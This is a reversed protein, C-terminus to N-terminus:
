QDGIAAAIEELRRRATGAREGDGEREYFRIARELASKAESYLGAAEETAVRTALALLSGALNDLPGADAMSQTNTRSAEVVERHLDVARRLKEVDEGTEGLIQLVAALGAKAATLQGEPDKAASLGAIADNYEGESERLKAVDENAREALVQLAQARFLKLQAWALQNTERTYVELWQRTVALIQELAGGEAAEGETEVESLDSLADLLSLINALRGSDETRDVLEYFEKIATDLMPRNNVPDQDFIWHANLAHLRAAESDESLDIEELAVRAAEFDGSASKEAARVKNEDTEPWRHELKDAYTIRERFARVLIRVDELDDDEPSVFKEGQAKLAAVPDAIWQPQGIGLESMLEGFFKDASGGWVTFKNEGALLTKCEPSLRETGSEYTVWYIVLQPMTRAAEHLLVMVGEEGGAYGVVVLLDCQQLLSYMMTLASPNKSTEGLAQRSNRLNYTHMSGHLHVVQPRKPRGTIRNLSELGDATVPLIGTRIIGQLVLQDFNTTLVSHVYRRQVLEGLCAHAWNLKDGSADILENIVERQQNPSKLHMEFFYQYLVGWHSGDSKPAQEATLAVCQHDILWALAADPNSGVFSGKSYTRALELACHQAVGAAAPIGASVSCGAGILFVARGRGKEIDDEADQALLLDNALDRVTRSIPENIDHDVSTMRGGNKPALISCDPVRLRGPWKALTSGTRSAILIPAASGRRCKGSLSDPTSGYIHRRSGILFIVLIM